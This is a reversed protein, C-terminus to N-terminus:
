DGNTLLYAGNSPIRGVDYADRRAPCGTETRRVLDGFSFPPAAQRGRENM